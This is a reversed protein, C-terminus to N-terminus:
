PEVASLLMGLLADVEELVAEAELIIRELDADAGELTEIHGPEPMFSHLDLADAVDELRELVPDQANEDSRDWPVDRLQEILEQVRGHLEEAEASIDGEEVSPDLRTRAAALDIVTRHAMDQMEYTWMRTDHLEQFQADDLPSRMDRRVEVTGTAVTRGAEDGDRIRLELAYEGPFVYPGEPPGGFGGGGGGEGDEELRISDPLPPTASEHRLDWEVRHVGGAADGGLSRVISDDPGLVVLDLSDADSVGEGVFYSIVADSPPNSVSFGRHGSGGPGSRFSYITAPRPEFLTAPADNAAEALRELPTIDHLVYIGRGHTGFVLDNEREQIVLDHVAVAEPLGNVIETWSEGGNITVYLGFETGVFLLDPNRHHEVMGRVTGGAPLNLTISTWTSGYDTSKMVYPAFDNDRHGDFTAYVTAEDHLSARIRSVYTMDPVGPFESIEQWSEGDDRTIQVLGDDTGAYLLGQRLTSESLTSVNGYDATGEHRGFGGASTLGMIPLTDRDLGRTLDNSIPTWSSGRDTSRFVHNAAFYLTRPEHASVVFPSNWNWRLDLSDPAPQIGKSEGTRLDVRNLNGYQSEVYIVMPDLPDTGVYFGDGGGLRRWDSNSVGSGFETRVPAGWTGNDQMGGYVWYPDRTDAAVTYFTTIPLDVAHDWSQGRDHSVYVGGDNGAVLHDSDHPDVWLDHQDVHIGGSIRNWSQGGDESATLQVGLFYVIDPNQRDVRIQGFFWPISRVDSRRTWTAGADESRYVGSQDDEADITAYLINPNSHSIDIGIRGLDGEPLGETLEEWSEGADTSKWIGSNPGGSVFSYARRERQYAAAYLIAPDRPHMVLDTFGTTPDIEHVLDWSGGGDTTKYIGREGGARWLPGTAAVYVVEPNTPHIVIRAIHQSELLGMHTWSAGADTSKYVGNGWSSSRLNNSEGSGVWVISPDSKAVAIAGISSVPEEDFIPDWTVGGNTTKWVGGGASGVYLIEGQRAGLAPDYPAAIAAIRGSMVAPGLSRAELDALLSETSLDPVMSETDSLGTQLVPTRQQAEVAAGSALVFAAAVILSSVRLNM